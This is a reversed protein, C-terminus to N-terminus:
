PEDPEVKGLFSGLIYRYLELKGVDLRHAMDELEKQWDAPVEAQVKVKFEDRLHFSFEQIADRSPLQRTSLRKTERQKERGESRQSQRLPERSPERMEERSRERGQPIDQTSIQTVKSTTDSTPQV